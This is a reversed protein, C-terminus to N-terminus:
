RFLSQFGKGNQPQEGFPTMNRKTQIQVWEGVPVKRRDRLEQSERHINYGKRALLPSGVSELCMTNKPRLFYILGYRDLHEQDKPPAVVRHVCSQLYRNSWFHLMDATNVIISGPIHKVDAWGGGSLQLQLGGIPQSFLFTVSGFDTHGRVYVDEYKANIEPPRAHYKVFRLFSSCVDNYRHDKELSDEPIELVNALLHLVKAAVDQHIHRHFREIEAYHDQVIQPHPRQHEPIFKYIHYCEWNDRLGPFQEIVGLPRYGNHDGDEIKARYKLKEEEDLNLILRGLEFQRDIDEQSLGFNIVYFFGTDEVAAKMQATLKQKGGPLDYLSFDLTPIKAYDLELKTGPTDMYGQKQAHVLDVQTGM